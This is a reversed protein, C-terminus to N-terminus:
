VTETKRSGISCVKPQFLVRIDSPKVMAARRTPSSLGTTPIATALSPALATCSKPARTVPNPSIRALKM